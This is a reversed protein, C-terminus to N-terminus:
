SVKLQSLDAGTSNVTVVMPPASLVVVSISCPSIVCRQFMDLHTGQCWTIFAKIPDAHSVCVIREGPHAAALASVTTIMRQQMEAFSEGNPFRFVSPTRQVTSWEPLKYLQSLSRGTWDGFDCELLGRNVKPRVGLAAAIPAATQRTRELPSM